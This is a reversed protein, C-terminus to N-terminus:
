SDASKKKVLELYELFTGKWVDKQKAKRYKDITELFEDKEDKNKEDM